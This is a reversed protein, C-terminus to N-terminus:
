CHRGRRHRLSLLPALAQLARSSFLWSGTNTGGGIIVVKQSTYDFAAAESTGPFPLGFGASSFLSMASTVANIPYLAAEDDTIGAPVAATYLGNIITYEQLGGGTPLKFLM